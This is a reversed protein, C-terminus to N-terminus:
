IESNTPIYSDRMVTTPTSPTEFNDITNDIDNLINKISDSLLYEGTKKTIWNDHKNIKSKILINDTQGIVIKIWNM